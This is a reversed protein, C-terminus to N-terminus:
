VFILRCSNVNSIIATVLGVKRALRKIQNWNLDKLVDVLHVKEKRRVNTVVVEMQKKTVLINKKVPRRTLSLNSIKKVLM